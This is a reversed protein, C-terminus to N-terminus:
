PMNIPKAILSVLNKKTEQHPVGFGDGFQYMCLAIRALNMATTKFNKVPNQMLIDKNMRKLTVSILHKIYDRADVESCGAERMYCQISKQVDGRRVEDSSTGLDDTLRLIMSPWRIIGGYQELSQLEKNNIPNTISFYAHLLLAPGSISVWSLNLYQNLSPTYGSHYWRAEVYYARSLEAWLKRLNAIINFGQDRLIDYAMENTCNFLQLFCIRMYEPLRDLANIDWREITDTFVELEDLTGYVDYIDDMITILVAIKTLIKRSYGFHPEPTFGLAWLFCEVLRHRAFRLKEELATEKYWRSMQKIEDQYQAQVINFDLKALELLILDADSRTEYVYIFWRAELKQVRWHLPLELAHRVQDALTRETIRELMAKLHHSSFDKALDLMTEDELSLFSAEYLSLLGKVDDSLCVDFNGDENTFSCFVEQPIHYGHQRLLRFQLSTTYLDKKIHRNNDHDFKHTKQYISELINQIGDGFHYAIDLRQLNDILELQDLQDVETDNLMIKVQKKLKETQEIYEKAAYPSTLSQVYDYDWISVGYNASRRAEM